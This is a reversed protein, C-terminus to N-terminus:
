VQYTKSVIQQIFPYMFPCISMMQFPLVPDTAVSSAASVVPGQHIGSASSSRSATSVTKNNILEM